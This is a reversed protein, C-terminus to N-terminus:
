SGPSRPVDAGIGGSRLEVERDCRQLLLPDHTVTLLTVGSARLEEFLSLVWESTGADLAGTPEDALLLEPELLLARAVAVRQRQGGSLVSVAKDLHKTLQVREALDQARERLQLWPRSCFYGPLLINELTSRTEDLHYGQFILGVRSVRLAAVEADDRDSLNLGFLEVRGSSPKMLGAALSLLSTKGSGSPGTLACWQGTQLEFDLGRLIPEGGGGFDSAPSWEVDCFILPQQCDM